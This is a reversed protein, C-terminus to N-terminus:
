GSLQQWQQQQEEDAETAACVGYLEQLGGYETITLERWSIDDALLWDGESDQYTLQYEGAGGDWPNEEPLGFMAFLQRRLSPFSDHVALDVKRGIGVGDMTVKVYMSTPGDGCEESSPSSGDVIMMTMLQDRHNWMKKKKKWRFSIPPWGVIGDGDNEDGEEEDETEIKNLVVSCNDDNDDGGGGALQLLPLTKLNTPLHDDEFSEIFRCRKRSNVASCETGDSGNNAVPLWSQVIVEDNTYNGMDNNDNGFIFSNSSKNNSTPLALGLQLEM